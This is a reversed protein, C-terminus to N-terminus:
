LSSAQNDLAANLRAYGEMIADYHPLFKKSIPSERDKALVERSIGVEQMLLKDLDREALEYRAHAKQPNSVEVAQARLITGTIDDLDAMHISFANKNNFRATGSIYLFPYIGGSIIYDV